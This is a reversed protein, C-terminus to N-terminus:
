CSFSSVVSRNNINEFQANPLANVCNFSLAFFSFKKVVNVDKRARFDYGANLNRLGSLGRVEGSVGEFGMGVVVLWGVGSAGIPLPRAADEAGAGSGSEFLDM